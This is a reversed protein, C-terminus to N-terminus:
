TLLELLLPELLPLLLLQTLQLPPLLPELALQPPPPPPPLPPLAELALQQPPLRPSQLTLLHPPPLQFDLLPLPQVVM